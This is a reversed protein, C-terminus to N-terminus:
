NSPEDSNPWSTFIYAESDDGTDGAAERYARELDDLAAAYRDPDGEDGSLVITDGSNTLILAKSETPNMKTFDQKEVPNLAGNGVSFALIVVLVFSAAALAMNRYNALFPNALLGALGTAPRVEELRDSLSEFLGAPVDEPNDKAESLLERIGALSMLEELCGECEALHEDLDRNEQPTITGDLRKHILDQYYKCSSVKKCNGTM